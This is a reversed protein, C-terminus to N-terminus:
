PSEQHPRAPPCGLMATMHVACSKCYDGGSAGEMADRCKLDLHIHIHYLRARDKVEEGCRDCYIRRSM